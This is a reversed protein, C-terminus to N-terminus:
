AQMTANKSIDVLSDSHRASWSEVKRAAKVVHHQPPIAPLADKFIIPVPMPQVLQQLLTNGSVTM